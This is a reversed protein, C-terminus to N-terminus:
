FMAYIEDYEGVMCSNLSGFRHKLVGGGALSMAQNSARFRCRWGEMTGNKKRIKYKDMM